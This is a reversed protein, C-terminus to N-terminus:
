RGWRRHAVKPERQWLFFPLSFALGLIVTALFTFFPFNMGLRRSEPFIWVLFVIQSLLFQSLVFASIPQVAWLGVQMTLTNQDLTVGDGSLYILSWQTLTCVLGVISLFGYAIRM